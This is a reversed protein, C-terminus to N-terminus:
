NVQVHSSGDDECSFCLWIYSKLRGGVGYLHVTLTSSPHFLLYAQM